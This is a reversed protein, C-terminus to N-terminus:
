AAVLGKMKSPRWLRSSAGTPTAAIETVSLNDLHLGLSDSGSGSGRVGIKGTIQTRATNDTIPPIMETGDVTLSLTTPSHGRAAFVLRVVTGATLTASASQLTTASGNDLALIEWVGSSTSYRAIYMSNTDLAVRLGIGLTRGAQVTKVVLDAAYDVDYESPAVSVVTYAASNSSAGTIRIHGENSVIFDNSYSPHKAWHTPDATALETGSTLGTFDASFIVTDSM